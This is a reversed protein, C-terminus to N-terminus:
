PSTPISLSNEDGRSFVTRVINEGTDADVEFKVVAKNFDYNTVQQGTWTSFVAEENSRNKAFFQFQEYNDSGEVWEDHIEKINEKGFHTIMQNYLVAGKMKSRHIGDPNKLHATVELVGNTLFAIFEYPVQFGFQGPTKTIRYDVDFDDIILHNNHPSSLLASCILSANTVSSFFCLLTFLLTEKLSM